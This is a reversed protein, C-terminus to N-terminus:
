LRWHNYKFRSKNANENRYYIKYEVNIARERNSHNINHSYEIIMIVARM